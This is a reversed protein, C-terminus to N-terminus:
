VELVNDNNPIEADKVEFFEKNRILEERIENFVKLKEEENMPVPKEETAFLKKFDVNEFSGSILAKRVEGHPDRLANQLITLNRENLDIFDKNNTLLADTLMHSRAAYRLFIPRIQLYMKFGRVTGHVLVEKENYADKNTRLRDTPFDETPFNAKFVLGGKEGIFHAVSSFSFTWSTFQSFNGGKGSNHEDVTKTGLINYPRVVNFFVAELWLARPVPQIHLGATPDVGRYLTLKKLTKVYKIPNLDLGQDAVNIVIDKEFTRGPNQAIELQITAEETPVAVPRSGHPSQANAVTFSLLAVSLLGFKISNFNTFIKRM